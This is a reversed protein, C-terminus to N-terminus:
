VVKATIAPLTLKPKLSNTGSQKKNKKSPTKNESCKLLSDRPFAFELDVALQNVIEKRRVFIYQLEKNEPFAEFVRQREKDCQQSLKNILKSTNEKELSQMRCLGNESFSFLPKIRLLLHNKLKIRLLLENFSLQIEKISIEQSAPPKKRSYFDFLKTMVLMGENANTFESKQLIESVCQTDSALLCSDFSIKKASNIELTNNVVYQLSLSSRYFLYLSLAFFVLLGFVLNPWSNLKLKKLLRILSKIEM